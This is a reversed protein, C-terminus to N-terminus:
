LPVFGATLLKDLKEKQKMEAKEERKKKKEVKDESKRAYLEEDDNAFKFFPLV